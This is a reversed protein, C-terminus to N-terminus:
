LEAKTVSLVKSHTGFNTRQTGLENKLLIQLQLSNEERCSGFLCILLFLSVLKGM